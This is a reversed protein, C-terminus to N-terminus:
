WTPNDLRREKVENTWLILEKELDIDYVIAATIAMDVVQALERGLDHEKGHTRDDGNRKMRMVADLVEAAETVLYYVSDDPPPTPHWPAVEERWRRIFEQWDNM